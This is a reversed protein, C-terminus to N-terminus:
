FLLQLKQLSQVCGNVVSHETTISLKNLYNDPGSIESWTVLLVDETHRCLKYSAGVKRLGTFHYDNLKTKMEHVRDGALRWAKKKNGTLVLRRGGPHRLENQKREKALFHIGCGNIRQECIVLQLFIQMNVAWNLSVVTNRATCYTKLWTSCTFIQISWIPGLLLVIFIKQQTTRFWSHWLHLCKESYSCRIPCCYPSLECHGKLIKNFNNPTVGATAEPDLKSATIQNSLRLLLWPWRNFM